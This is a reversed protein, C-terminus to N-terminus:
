RPEILSIFFTFDNGLLTSRNSQKNNLLTRTEIHANLQARNYITAIHAQTSLSADIFTTNYYNSLGTPQIVAEIQLEGIGNLATMNPKSGERFANANTGNRIQFTTAYDGLLTSLSHQQNNLLNTTEYIHTYSHGIM